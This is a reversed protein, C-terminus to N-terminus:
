LIEWNGLRAQHLAGWMNWRPIMQQAESLGLWVRSVRAYLSIIVSDTGCMVCMWVSNLKNASFIVYVKRQLTYYSRSISITILIIASSILHLVLSQKVTVTLSSLLENFCLKAVIQIWHFTQTIKCSKTQCCPAEGRGTHAALPPPPLDLGSNERQESNSQAAELKEPGWQATSINLQDIRMLSIWSFHHYM